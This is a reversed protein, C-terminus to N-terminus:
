KVIIGKNGRKVARRVQSPSRETVRYKAGLESDELNKWAALRVVPDEAVLDPFLRTLTKYGITQTKPDDHQPIRMSVYGMDLKRVPASGSRRAQNDKLIQNPTQTM